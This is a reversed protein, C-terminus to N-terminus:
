QRDLKYTGADGVCNGATVTYTGELHDEVWGGDLDLTADGDTATGSLKQATQVLSLSADAFCPSDVFASTGTVAGDDDVLMSTLAGTTGSQSTWAGAWNGTLECWSDDAGCGALAAVIIAIPWKM